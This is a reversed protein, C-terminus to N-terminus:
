GDPAGHAGPHCSWLQPLLKESRHLNHYGM